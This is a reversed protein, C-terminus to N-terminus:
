LIVKRSALGWSVSPSSCMSEYNSSRKAPSHVPVSRHPRADSNGVPHVSAKDNRDDSVCLSRCLALLQMGAGSSAQVASM